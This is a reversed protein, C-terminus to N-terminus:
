VCRLNGGRSDYWNVHSSWTVGDSIYGFVTNGRVRWYEQRYTTVKLVRPQPQTCILCPFLIYILCLYSWLGSLLYSSKSSIVYIDREPVDHQWRRPLHRGNDNDRGDIDRGGGPVGCRAGKKRKTHESVPRHVKGGKEGKQTRRAEAERRGRWLIIKGEGLTQQKNDNGKFRSEHM